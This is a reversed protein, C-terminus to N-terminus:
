EKLNEIYHPEIADLFIKRVLDNLQVGETIAKIKLAKRIEETVLYTQRVLLDTEPKRKRGRTKKENNIGPNIKEEEKFFIMNGDKNEKEIDVEKLEFLEESM